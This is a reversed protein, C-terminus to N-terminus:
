PMGTLAAADLVSCDTLGNSLMLIAGMCRLHEAHLECRLAAVLGCSRSRQLDVVDGGVAKLGALVSFIKLIFYSEVQSLATM